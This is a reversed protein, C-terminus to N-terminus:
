GNGSKGMSKVTDIIDYSNTASNFSHFAVGYRKLNQNWSAYQARVIQPHFKDGFLNGVGVGYGSQYIEKVLTSDWNKQYTFPVMEPSNRFDGENNQLFVQLINNPWSGGYTVIDTLSDNNLDMSAIDAYYELKTTIKKISLTDSKTRVVIIDGLITIGEDGTSTIAITGVSDLITFSNAGELEGSKYYNEFKWIRNKNIFHLLPVYSKSLPIIIIHEVDKIQYHILRGGSLLGASLSTPSSM